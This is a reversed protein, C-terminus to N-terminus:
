PLLSEIYRPTQWLPMTFRVNVTLCTAIAAGSFHQNRGRKGTM